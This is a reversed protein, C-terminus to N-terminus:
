LDKKFIILNEKSDILQMGYGLLVKLSTTSNNAKPCVTGTLFKCGKERAIDCVQDALVSAFSKHRYKDDTWIDRLYCEDGSILFTAFGYESEISDINEREKLYKLVNNM